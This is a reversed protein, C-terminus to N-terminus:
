RFLVLKVYPLLLFFPWFLGGYQKMFLYRQLFPQEKVGLLRRYREMISLSKDKSTNRYTNRNCTGVCNKTIYIPVKCISVRLGWETDAGRHKFYSALFGIHRLLVFPIAVLNMNVTDVIQNNGDPLLPLMKLRNPGGTLRYGGYSHVKNYDIFCGALVSSANSAILYLYEKIFAGLGNDFLEIDDNLVVLHDYDINTQIIKDYGYNMGGAWFLAGNGRFLNVAPFESLIAEATGDVSNDDVVYVDIDLKNEKVLEFIDALIHLTKPKRNFCTFLFAIKTRRQNM